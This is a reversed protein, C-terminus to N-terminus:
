VVFEVAGFRQQYFKRIRAQSLIVAMALYVWTKLYLPHWRVAVLLNTIAAKRNFNYFLFARGIFFHYGARRRRPSKRQKKAIALLQAADAPTITAAKICAMKLATFAPAEQRLTVSAYSVRYDVLAEPYNAVNGFDALKKFLLYDEFGSPLQGPYGGVADFAAKRFVVSSNTFQNGHELGQKLGDHDTRKKELYIFQFDHDLIRTFTGLLVCNPHQAMYAQQLALKKPHWADDADINAILPAQAMAIAKNRSKWIGTNPQHVIRFRPDQLNNLYAATADTSGDNVVICEWNTFTQAVVSNLCRAITEAGNYVTLIVALEPKMRTEKHHELSQHVVM